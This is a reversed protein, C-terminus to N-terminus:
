PGRLYLFSIDFTRASAALNRLFAEFVCVNGASTGPYNSTKNIVTPAPASSGSSWTNFPQIKFTVTGWVSNDMSMAYATSAAVAVGTDTGSWNTGDGTVALWNASVASDYAFAYCYGANAAATTPPTYGNFTGGTLTAGVGVWIRTSTIDSGTGILAWASSRGLYSNGGSPSMGALNGSSGGSTYRKVRVVSNISTNAVGGAGVETPRSGTVDRWIGEWTLTVGTSWQLYAGAYPGLGPALDPGFPLDIGAGGSAAGWVPVGGAVKLVQGESGIGLKALTNAASAYVMAGTADLLKKVGSYWTPVGGAVILEQDTSGIGLKALVNAASAYLMAGTADLLKKAGSFWSPLGAAVVMEQDTTGIGLRALTNAASAHLTDGAATLTKKSGAAWAAAGGITTLVQDNTGSPVLQTVETRQGFFLADFYATIGGAATASLSAAVSVAGAPATGAVSVAGWSTSANASSSALETGFADYFKLYLRAAPSGFGSYKGQAAFIFSDGAACPASYTVGDAGATAVFRRMYWGAYGAGVEVTSSEWRWEVTNDVIGTGTGTPGGSGASTGADTCVYGKGGNTVADGVAYVTTAAWAPAMFTRGYFEATTLDAGEPPAEESSPNPWLNNYNSRSLSADCASAAVLAAAGVAAVGATMTSGDLSVPLRSATAGDNSEYGDGAQPTYAVAGQVAAPYDEAIVDLTFDEGESISVIRVPTASLGLEPETLTVIDTPELAVYKWSLRFRYTNRTYLSRQAYIRSLMTPAEGGPFAVPLSIAPARVLGRVDVDSQDPDELVIRAYSGNASDVYEVPFSNFCDADPRRSMEVPPGDGLFDDVGLAFQSTNTPSYNTAGYVPSTSAVNGLPVVKLKGQSWVADSNTATLLDAMHALASKQTDILLSLRLGFADCYVRFDGAGTGTITTSVRGSPWECGRRSHTLLDNVIDAPNVDRTAVGFMAGQMEFALAPIEAQSETPVETGYALATHQYDIATDFPSPVAQSLDDKGLQIALKRGPSTLSLAAVREKGWWMQLSGQAEGECIAVCITQARLAASEPNYAWRCTGDTINDGTGTPGGSGASTGAQSCFYEKGGDNLVTSGYVYPNSALWAPPAAVTPFILRLEWLCTGDIIGRQGVYFLGGGTFDASASTTGSQTCTLVCDQGTTYGSSIYTKCLVYEGVQYATTAIRRQIWGTSLYVPATKELLLANVKRTGYLIPIPRGPTALTMAISGQGAPAPDQEPIPDPTPEPDPGGGGGDGIPDFLRSM